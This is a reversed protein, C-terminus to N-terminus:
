DNEKEKQQQSEYTEALTRRRPLEFRYIVNRNDNITTDGAKGEKVFGLLKALAETAKIQVASDPIDTSEITKTIKGSKTDVIETRAVLKAEMHQELKRVCTYFKYYMSDAIKKLILAIDPNTLMSHAMTSALGDNAKPNVAARYAAAGNFGNTIYVVLLKQKKLTLNGWSEKIESDWLDELEQPITVNERQLKTKNAPSTAKAAKKKVAKRV